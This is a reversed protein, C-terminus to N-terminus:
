GGKGAVVAEIPADRPVGDLMTVSLGGDPLNWVISHHYDWSDSQRFHGLFSEVSATIIDEAAQWNLVAHEFAEPEDDEDQRPYPNPMDGYLAARLACGVGAEDNAGWFSPHKPKRALPVEPAWWRHILYAYLVDEAMGAPLRDQPQATPANKSRSTM